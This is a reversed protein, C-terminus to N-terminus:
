ALLIDVVEEWVEIVMVVYVPQVTSLPKITIINYCTLGNLELVKVQDHRTFDDPTICVCM